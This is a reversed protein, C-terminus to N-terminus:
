CFPQEQWLQCLAVTKQLPREGFVLDMIVGVAPTQRLHHRGRRGKPLHYLHPAQGAQLLRLSLDEAQSQHADRPAPLDRGRLRRQDERGRIVGSGFLVAPRRECWSYIGRHCQWCFYQEPEFIQRGHLLPDGRASRVRLFHSSGRLLQQFILYKLYM